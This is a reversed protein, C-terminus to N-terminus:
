PQSQGSFQDKSPRSSGGEAPKTFSKYEGAAFEFVSEVSTGEISRAGRKFYTEAGRNARIIIGRPNIILVPSELASFVHRIINEATITGRRVKVAIRLLFALIALPVFAVAGSDYLVPSIFRAALFAACVAFLAAWLLCEGKKRGPKLQRFRIIAPLALLLPSFINYLLAAYWSNGRIVILEM